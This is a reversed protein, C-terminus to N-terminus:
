RSAVGVLPLNIETHGFMESLLVTSIRTFLSTEHAIEIPLTSEHGWSVGIEM